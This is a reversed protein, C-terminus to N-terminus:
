DFFEKYTKQDLEEKTVIFRDPLQDFAEEMDDDYDQCDM